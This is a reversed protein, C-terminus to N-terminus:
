QNRNPGTVYRPTTATYQPTNANISRHEQESVQAALNRSPQYSGSITVEQGAYPNYSTYQGTIGTTQGQQQMGGATNYQGSIGGTVNQGTTATGLGPVTATQRQIGGTYQGSIGGTLTQGTVTRFGAASYQPINVNLARHQQESIQSALNRSPQYSGSITVEQGAYPNYYTNYPGAMGAIQGQIGGTYQPIGGGQVQGVFQTGFGARGQMQMVQQATNTLQQLQRTIDGFMRQMQQLKQTANREAEQLRQLQQANRYETQSLQQLQSQNQQESRSLQNVMQNLNNLNQQFQQIQQQLQFIQNDM